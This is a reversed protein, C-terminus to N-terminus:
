VSSYDKIYIDYTKESSNIPILLNYKGNADTTDQVVPSSSNPDNGAAFALIEIGELYQDTLEDNVYGSLTANGETMENVRVIITAKNGSYSMSVEQNIVDEYRKASNNINFASVYKIKDLDLKDVVSYVSQGDIGVMRKVENYDADELIITTNDNRITLDSTSNYKRFKVTMNFYKRITINQEISDDIQFTKTTVKTFAGTLALSSAALVLVTAISFIIIYKKM